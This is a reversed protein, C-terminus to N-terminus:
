GRLLSVVLKQEYILLAGVIMGTGILVRLTIPEQNFFHGLLLAMVPTIMTIMAVRTVSVRILVYYYMAFGFMTAIIGLYLISLLSNIPLAQPVQGDILYWSLLYLPLSFLLSGATSSFANLDAGIAKIRVASISHLLTAMFVGLVGAVAGEGIQRASGFMVLLGIFGMLLAVLQLRGISRDKMIFISMLAVLLPSLGFVVSIWGSPIYQSSWYVSMMAGYVGLVGALYTQVAKRHWPLRLGLVRLLIFLGVTGILMRAAVGFMFGPGESSWQIALPTTTWIIIIGLYAAPVSM